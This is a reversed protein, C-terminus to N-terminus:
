PGRDIQWRVKIIGGSDQAIYLFDEDDLAIGEQNCGTLTVVRQMKGELDIAILLNSADSVVYLQKRKDDYHLGALDIVGLDIRRGLPIAEGERYGSALPLTVEFLASVDEPDDMTFSQNAVLFTGGQPHGPDPLFVIGELGNGRPHMVLSGEFTRELAFRRRIAFDEPSVEVIEEEGEIAVYLLGTGPDCTIGELDARAFLRAQKIPRGDKAIECIDGEDGVVFLTDRQRHYVIGSPETFGLRDIDGVWDYDFRLSAVLEELPMTQTAPPTPTADPKAAACAAVCVLPLFCLFRRM